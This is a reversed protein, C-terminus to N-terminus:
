LYIVCAVIAVVGMVFVWAYQQVQGSQFERIEVATKNTIWATLNMFGDVVHRDFWAIPTSIKDFVIRNTIFLYVEDIYFKHYAYRYFGRISAVIADPRNNQKKYLVTAVAIGAIAILVSPIAVIWETHIEFPLGSPTVLSSFPFFGSVCTFVALVILPVTMNVPAEHPKHHYDPESHWFIRYYLRFMYFATLGAVLFQCTFIIKDAEFAAVLIEDKSYFGSLPPIGAIALCAILFTIHTVPLHKRLNGMAGMENSHVAHIIAGAGLFLLAKFMAHTFLHWMSATFGLGDHGDFGSVGLAVLMYAIQSITSFALVRKIDTQTCAIVAALL